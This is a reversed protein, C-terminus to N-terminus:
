TKEKNNIEPIVELNLFQKVATLIGPPLVLEVKGDGQIGGDMTNYRCAFTLNGSEDTMFYLTKSESITKM